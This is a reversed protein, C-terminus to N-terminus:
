IKTVKTVKKVSVECNDLINPKTIKLKIKKINPYDNQLSKIVKELADEILFFKRKQLFRQIFSAIKAYDLFDEEKKYSINCDVVIKQAKKREEELIGLIADFELNKIGIKYL